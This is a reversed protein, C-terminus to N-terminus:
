NGEGWPCLTIITQHPLYQLSHGWKSEPHTESSQFLINQTTDAHTHMNWEGSWTMGPSMTFFFLPFFFWLKIIVWWGMQGSRRGKSLLVADRRRSCLPLMNEWHEGGRHGGEKIHTPPFSPPIVEVTSNLSFSTWRRVPSLSVFSLTAWSKRSPNSTSRLVRKLVFFLLHLCMPRRDSRASINTPLIEAYELYNFNWVVAKRGNKFDSLFNPGVRICLLGIM